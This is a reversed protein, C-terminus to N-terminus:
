CYGCSGRIWAQYSMSFCHWSPCASDRLIKWFTLFEIM